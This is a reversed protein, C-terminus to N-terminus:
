DEFEPSASPGSATDRAEKRIKAMEKVEAFLGPRELQVHALEGVRLAHKLSGAKDRFTKLFSSFYTLDAISIHENQCFLIAPGAWVGRQDGRTMELISLNVQSGDCGRADRVSLILPVPLENKTAVNCNIQVEGSTVEDDDVSLLDIEEVLGTTENKQIKFRNKSWYLEPGTGDVPFYIGIYSKDDPRPTAFGWRNMEVCLLNHVRLCKARCGPECFAAEKCICLVADKSDCLACALSNKM